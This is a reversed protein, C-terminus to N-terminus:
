ARQRPANESNGRNGFYERRARKWEICKALSSRSFVTFQILAPSICAILQFIVM